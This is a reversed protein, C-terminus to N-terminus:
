PQGLPYSRTIRIDMYGKTRFESASPRNLAYYRGSIKEPFIVVDKNDPLFIVGHRTFSIFDDTSALCTTIGTIDSIASYTIYYRDSIRTIRPDEIGFREYINEPFMAPKKEIKFDIGNKSRAIRM